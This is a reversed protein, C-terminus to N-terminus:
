FKQTPPVTLWSKYFERLRVLRAQSYRQTYIHRVDRLDAAYREILGRMESSQDNLAFVEAPTVPTKVGQARMVCVPVCALVCACIMLIRQVLSKM